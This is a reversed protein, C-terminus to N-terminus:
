VLVGHDVIYKAPVHDTLWVGNTSLYFVFGDKYMDGSRITLIIATGRRDGVKEATVKDRSMHVHHRNMKLLGKARIAPLFREVTGHFLQEPPTTAELQLEVDISHGQNARIRSRDSNFAFRQKDNTAVIEELDQTAFIRGRLAAKTILESVDAWGHEDLHLGIEDPKHRLVLSLFKSIRYKEKENM